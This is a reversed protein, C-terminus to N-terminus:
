RRGGPSCRGRRRTGATGPRAPPPGRGHQAGGRPEEGRADVGLAGVQHEGRRAPHAEDLHLVAHRPRRQGLREVPQAPDDVPEGDPDGKGTSTRNVAASSMQSEWPWPRSLAYMAIWWNTPMGYSCYKRPTRAPTSRREAAPRVPALHVEAGRGIAAGRRGASRRSGRRARGARGRAPTRWRSCGGPRRRSVTPVFPHRSREMPRGDRGLPRVM